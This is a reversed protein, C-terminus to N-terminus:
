EFIEITFHSDLEQLLSVSILPHLGVRLKHLLLCFSHGRMALVTNRQIACTTDAARKTALWFGAFGGISSSTDTRAQEAAGHVIARHVAACQAAPANICELAHELSFRANVM